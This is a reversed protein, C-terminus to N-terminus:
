YGLDRRVEGLMTLGARHRRLNEVLVGAASPPSTTGAIHPTLMIKPHLWFPHDHPPPEDILVDLIAGSLRGDDLARLLDAENLHRGRGMNILGAGIPLADFLADDLIGQTAPTLPLLCILIDCHGLFSPLQDQGSFCTVGEISRATRSWGFLPFGFSKLQEVVATGLDGLGMVGVRRRAASPATLPAWRRARQDQRYTLLDRHLALTAFVAYEIMGERIAPDLMRVIKIAPPISEFAFQNVGAGTSFIVQLNPLRAVLDPMFSWAVLYRVAALDTADPWLQVQLEPAMDHLAERWEDARGADAAYLLTMDHM